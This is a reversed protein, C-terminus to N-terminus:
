SAVAIGEIRAVVEDVRTLDRPVPFRYIAAAAALAAAEREAWVRSDLVDLMDTWYFQGLIEEAADRGDLLEPEVPADPDAKGLRLVAAVPYPRPQPAPGGTWHRKPIPFNSYLPLPEPDIGAALLADDALQLPAGSPFCQGNAVTAVEDSLVIHGRRALAAALVSKGTAIRGLLLVARGDIAVVSGHLALQGRRWCICALVNGFVVPVLEPADPQVCLDCTVKDREILFYGIDDFRALATGDAAIQLVGRDVVPGVLNDPVAGTTFAVDPQGADQSPWPITGPLPLGTWLRWGGAYIDSLNTPKTTM